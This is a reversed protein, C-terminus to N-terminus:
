TQALSRYAAKGPFGDPYTEPLFKTSIDGSIFKPQQIIDRLLPINNKVGPSLPSFRPPTARLGDPRPRHM